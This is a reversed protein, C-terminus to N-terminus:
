VCILTRQFSKLFDRVVLVDELQKGELMDEEKKASIQALFIQCGKSMYEQAKSCSIITLRSERGNNSERDKNKLKRCDRKFHGPAGCQFCGSGKPNAGNNRQANAVNPNGSSKCDRVFHGINNCKYRKQTCMSNHHFQCKTCKPLNGSYPNKKATEMNYVRTVNLRKSTQQQHCHNNRFSDNAKRKNNTQREAYARLKQDMLDNALRITEDLTRPKSAKKSEYINNLLEIEYDAHFCPRATQMNRRNDEHSSHSGDGNTSNQLLAQDIVQVSEPTM